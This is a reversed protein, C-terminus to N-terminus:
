PLSVELADQAYTGEGVWTGQEPDLPNEGLGLDYLRVEFGGESFSFDDVWVDHGDVRRVM